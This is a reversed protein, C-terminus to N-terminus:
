KGVKIGWVDRAYERITRDSSFFGMNAVNNISKKTWLTQDRYCKDVYDQCEMYSAFDALLLFNDGGDLLGRVLPKFRNADDPSFFGRDLLDVVHKLEPDANYYDRPRYGSAKLDAVENAKLGFIFINDDGVADKIEINAGDLTGITLAGNLAFKMNGTGSAETGATSIQESLDSAPFIREAVTVRYNPLFYAKLLHNTKPDNNVLSAVDNILKIILKATSYGPAAKGGFFVTRPVFDGNPNAKIRLYRAALGLVNLLQRKYEHIRKVQFDFMTAPDVTFGYEQAVFQAFQRKNEAKIAMWKSRFAADKASKELKKLQYLDKVWGDGVAETVLKALAPNAQKLWRRQTIGNTKNNFKEPWMQYFDRFLRSKILESHLGAVGNVSHSGVIALYAMRIYKGDPSDEILSMSRIKDQDGEFFINVQHLFRFNIEYIIELLRPLLKSYLDVSWRELSEPMLTHNTYAFVKTAVAWADDWELSQEDVLVRMLEAVAIAPHTDNLQIAAKEPLKRLDDCEELFYSVVEHISAAVFFYQQKLRLARGCYLNDNPYLVMSITEVMDKERVAEIYDGSNFYNLNFEETAKASWLTLMNVTETDYGPILLAYPVALVDDTDIWEVKYKGDKGTTTQTRGGFKVRVTRHDRCIIWPNGRFLWNDPKEVQWGDKIEQNFMGYQYRIGFGYGPIDLTAMSDLFCAALRGLGGNGLAAHHEEDYIEELRVGLDHLAAAAEEEIKLSSLSNLLERGMLFELSLYYVRKVGQARYRKETELWKDILESRVATALSEFKDCNSARDLSRGVVHHLADIFNAGLDKPDYGNRSEKAKKESM